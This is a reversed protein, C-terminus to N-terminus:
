WVSMKINIFNVKFNQKCKFYDCLDQPEKKSHVLMPEKKQKKALAVVHEKHVEHKGRATTASTYGVEPTPVGM